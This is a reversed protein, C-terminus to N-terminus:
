TAVFVDVIHGTVNESSLSGLTGGCFFVAYKDQLATGQTFGRARALKIDPASIKTLSSDYIDIADTYQGTTCHGGAFMAFGNITAAGIYARASSLSSLTSKTLSTNYVEVVDTYENNDPNSGGGAFIACGNTATGGIQYKGEHLNALQTRTGAVDFVDVNAKQPDGFYTFVRGGGFFAYNSTSVGTLYYRSQSLATYVSHTNSADYADVASSYSTTSDHGGAFLAHTSTSAGALDYRGYQLSQISSYTLSDNIVITDGAATGDYGSGGQGETLGGSCLFKNAVSTGIWQYRRLGCSATSQTLQNDYAYVKDQQQGWFTGADGGAVMAYTDTSGVAAYRLSLPLNSVGSFVAIPDGSWCLRAVGGVGIYAKKIKRAIGDVGIYGKKVKHAVGGVGIFAGKAM